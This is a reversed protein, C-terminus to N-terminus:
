KQPPKDKYKDYESLYLRSAEDTFEQRRSALNKLNQFISKYVIQHAHNKITQDSYEDLEIDNELTLDALRLLDEKTIKDITSFGGEKDLYHGMNNEIKLLKM